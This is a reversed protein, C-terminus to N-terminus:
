YRMVVTATVANETYDLGRDSDNQVRHYSLSGSVKPSFSRNLGLRVTKLNDARDLGTFENRNYSLQVNSSTQPTIRLTWLVSGGTQRTSSNQSFDGSGPLGTTAAERRQTYVNALVTNRVGHIGFTGQLRKQL